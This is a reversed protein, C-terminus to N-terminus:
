PNQDSDLIRKIDPYFDDFSWKRLSWFMADYDPQDDYWDWFRMWNPEHRHIALRSRRSVLHAARTASRYVIRNRVQMLLLFAMAITVCSLLVCTIQLQTM